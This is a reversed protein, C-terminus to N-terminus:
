VSLTGSKSFCWDVLGQYPRNANLSHANPSWTRTPRHTHSPVGGFITPKGTPNGKFGVQFLSGEFLCPGINFTSQEHKYQHKRLHADAWHKPVGVLSFPERSNAQNRAPMGEEWLNQIFPRRSVPGAVPLTVTSPRFGEGGLFGQFSSEGTFVLSCLNNMTEVHHLIEDMWLIHTHTHTVRAVKAKEKESGM